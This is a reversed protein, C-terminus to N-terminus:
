WNLEYVFYQVLFDLIERKPMRCLEHQITEWISPSPDSLDTEGERPLELQPAWDTLKICYLLALVLGVRRLLAMTNSNSDEFYGFSKALAFNQSSWHGQAELLSPTERSPQAHELFPGPAEDIAGVPRFTNQSAKETPPSSYVCEEPRRRRNCHNCPYERNCQLDM